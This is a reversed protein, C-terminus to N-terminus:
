PDVQQRLCGFTLPRTSLRKPPPSKIKNHQLKIPGPDTMSDDDVDDDRKATIKLLLKLANVLRATQPRASQGNILM